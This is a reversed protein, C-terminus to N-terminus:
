RRPRLPLFRASAVLPLLDVPRSRGGISLRVLSASAPYHGLSPDVAVWRGLWLETWSHGFSGEPLIALGSAVRAPLGAAIAMSALLQAKGDPGGRRRRFTFLAAESSEASSDTAIQRSVWSTLRRAREDPTRAGRVLQIATRRIEDEMTSLTRATGEEPPQDASTSDSPTFRSVIVTDGRVTQRGGGLRRARGSVTATSDPQLLFERIASVTDLALGTAVLPVMGPIARRWAASEARLRSRYNNRVIEFASRVLTVGGATEQHVLTGGADIWSVTASGPADHELRWARVTDTTAPVWQAQTSDWVASDPVVFTSEATVRVALPYTTGVGFDFLPLTFQRGIRLNGGFAARYPLTSPLVIGPDVRVRMRAAIGSNGESDAVVLMSDPGLSADRREQIGVGFETRTLSRLRLSPTLFFVSGVASQHSVDRDPLDVVLLETLRVGDVLTDVTLNLQGIQRAGAYVAYFFAGPGLRTSRETITGRESKVFERRALWALAAAWALLVLRGVNRRTLGLDM